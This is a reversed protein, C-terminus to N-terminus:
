KFVRVYPSASSHRGMQFQHRSNLSSPHRVCAPNMMQQGPPPRPSSNLYRGPPTNYANRIIQQNALKVDENKNTRIRICVCVAFLMASVLIAFLIGFAQLFNFIGLCKSILFQM